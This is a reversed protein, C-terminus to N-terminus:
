GRLKKVSLATLPTMGAWELRAQFEKLRATKVVLLESSLRGELYPRLLSSGEITQLVENSPCHLITVSEMELKTAIGGWSLLALRLFDPLGWQARQSLFDLLTNLSAGAKLATQVRTAILQWKGKGKREAWQDLQGEILLDSYGALLEILGDEHLTFAVPLAQSYDIRKVELSAVPTVASSKRLLFREGVRQGELGSTLAKEREKNNHFEVLCVNRYLTIQERREAWGKIEVTVNQPLDGKMGAGLQQLLDALTTGSELGRYVSESTLRYQAVHQQSQIREAHRELFALQVPTIRDLYVIIEFNPQVIWTGEASAANPTAVSDTTAAAQQLVERGLQSLRVSVLKQNEMGLDVLGLAYVWTTLAQELWVREQKIWNARLKERWEKELQRAEAANKNYTYPRNPLHSLSFHEGIREFLLNDLDDVAYFTTGDIPLSALLILLANRAKVFNQIYYYYSGNLQEIEAWDTVQLVGQLFEQIQEAYSRQAIKAPSLKLHFSVKDPDTAWSSYRLAELFLSTPDHFRLGDMQITDGDWQMARQIKRQDNSRIKGQQTIGVGGQLDDVAQLLGVLLLAVSAPRRELITTPKPSPKISLPIPAFPKVAALLRHDTYITKDSYSYSYTPSRDNSGLILGRRLLARELEDEPKHYAKDLSIPLKVGTMLLGFLLSSMDTVGGSQKIIALAAHEFPSLRAVAEEIKQPDNLSEQIWAICKPKQFTGLGGWLRVMSKLEDANINSLVDDFRRTAYTM